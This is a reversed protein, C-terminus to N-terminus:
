DSWWLFLSVEGVKNGKMPRLFVIIFNAVKGVTDVDVHQIFKGLRFLVLLCETMHDPGISLAGSSIKVEYQLFHIM